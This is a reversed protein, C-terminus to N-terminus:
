FHIKGFSVQRTMIKVQLAEETRAEADEATLLTVAAAPVELGAELVTEGEPVWVPAHTMKRDTSEFFATESKLQTLKNIASGARAGGRGVTSGGLGDSSNTSHDDTGDTGDDGQELHM